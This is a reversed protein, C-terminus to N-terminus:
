DLVRRVKESFHRITFPKQLFNVGEDLVGHHVIVNDTYGSMYLVKLDPRLEMMQEYLERGNIDPMIVDTLLLHIEDLYTAAIQLANTPSEAELVTYGYTALTECALKRVMPEDEVVLVTETGYVTPMEPMAVADMKADEESRPLYIKFTTGADPESYVWINGQHQKIIGFVTALGLGTGKGRVKTTFFPEFIQKQTESDMGLGTDSISLMVYHGPQTEPHTQVYSEDLYVTDTEIILQGGKPMADRANIVLNMLIQEIQIRDARILCPIPAIYTQLKINEGILRQLMDQFGNIIENLDFLGIELMQRRSFALIQKTLDAARNAATGIKEFYSHLKDDASSRMQGLETYGLMPVLLNNFDHAIGGALRGLSELKQAQRLREELAAQTETALRTATIDLAAGITRIPSRASGEGAFFTQARVSLWRITGDRHVIRHEIDYFGDRKPDHARQVATKVRELDESYVQAAIKTELVEEDLEWGWMERYQPSWYISASLHDHDFTGIQAVRVAQRLREESEQLAAETRRRETIDRLCVVRMVQGQFKYSRGLIEVPFITGDKRLAFTEYLKEENHIIKQRVLEQANPPVFNLFNHGIVEQHQYGFLAAFPENADKIIGDQHFFIGETTVDSFKQLREESEQLRRQSEKRVTIDRVVACILERDDFEMFNAAIEVPILRGDKTQHNTELVQKGRLKGEEWDELWQAESFAPDIESISLTLMEQRTYGLMRCAAENVDVFQAAKDIWYVADTVNDISSRTLRLDSAARRRKTIDQVTGLLKTIRGKKDFQPEAVGHVWRVQGDSHRIIRYEKDLRKHEALIHQFYQSFVLRDDPHILAQWGAIDRAYIEDIGYIEDLTSSSIWRETKIDYYFSGIQAISQSKRLFFDSEKLADEAQKRKTIDQMTGVLKLARGNEDLEVEGLAHIWRAQKDNPRIIPYELDFRNHEALVHQTLYRLMEVRYDSNVLSVWGTIDRPYEENLGLIKDLTQSSIWLGTNADLYYSGIQSVLQSEKLFFEHDEKPNELYGAGQHREKKQLAQQVATGLQEIQEKLIYDTAGAKMCAVATAENISQTLIILPTRPAHAAATQLLSLGDPLYNAIILDPQFAQLAPLFDAWTDVQQWECSTVAQRVIQEARAADTSLHEIHLIRVPGSM